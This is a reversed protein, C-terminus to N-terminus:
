GRDDAGGLRAALRHALIILGAWALFIYLFPAPIGFIARAGVFINILPSALLLIGLAPLAVAADERKRRILAREALDTGGETSEDSM